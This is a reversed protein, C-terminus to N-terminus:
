SSLVAVVLDLLRASAPGMNGHISEVVGLLPMNLTVIIDESANRGIVPAPVPDAGSWSEQQTTASGLDKLAAGGQQAGAKSNISSQQLKRATWIGGHARKMRKLQQKQVAEVHYMDAPPPPPAAAAQQSVATGQHPEPEPPPQQPKPELFYTWDQLLLLM